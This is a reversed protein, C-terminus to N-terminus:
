GSWGRSSGTFSYFITHKPATGGPPPAAKKNSHQHNSSLLSFSLFYLIWDIQQIVYIRYFLFYFSASFPTLIQKCISVNQSSFYHIFYVIIRLFYKYWLFATSRMYIIYYHVWRNIILYPSHSQCLILAFVEHNKASRSNLFGLVFLLMKSKVPYIWIVSSLAPTSISLKSLLLIRFNPQACYRLQDWYYSIVLLNIHQLNPQQYSVHRYFQIGLTKIHYAM